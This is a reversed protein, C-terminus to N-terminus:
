AFIDDARRVGTTPGSGPGASIAPKADLAIADTEWRFSSLKMHRAFAARCHDLPALQFRRSREGSADRPRSETLTTGLVARLSKGWAGVDAPRYENRERSFRLYADYAAKKDAEVRQDGWVDNGFQGHQLCDFLWAEPGRLSHMKQEALAATQPVDFVDFGSLDHALLAHLMAGLGGADAEEHLRKFYARDQKHRDSVDLVCFRREDSGAPVVWQENSALLLHTVNRATVANQHKAEITVFPDTVLGKLVGEHQRDGAYFAEDAFVFVADRLHANFNGVLHKAHTIYLGHQGFLKLLFTGLTGKGVGRGGRLILAVRGAEGPHQVMRALWGCLYAFSTEDGDCIVDHLHARIRSWDGPAPAVSFGRWLNLMDPPVSQGPAFTVGGRYQRREKHELWADAKNISKQGFQIRENLYLRRLDEFTLRELVERNLAHDRAPRYVLVKGNENVVFYRSNMEDLWSPAAGQTAAAQPVPKFDAEPAAAGAPTNGYTYASRVVHALEGADLPPNCPWHEGMLALTAAEDSGLDKCRAAVKYGNQNRAGAEGHPAEHTLYHVTRAEASPVNVAAPAPQAERAIATGCKEVLWAPADAIPADHLVEYPRGDITSGAGVIFGGHSRTDLGAGLKGASQKVAQDVRFVVHAGGTTTIQKYTAPLEQGAEAQLQEYSQAGPKGDKVDVDVALLARGGFQGTYIGINDEPHATWHARIKEADTTAWAKFKVRPTKTDPLCPFVPLDRAAAALAHELKSTPNM